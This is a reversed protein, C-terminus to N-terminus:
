KRRSITAPKKSTSKNNTGSDRVWTKNGYRAQKNGGSNPQNYGTKKAEALKQITVCEDTTHNGPGHLACM